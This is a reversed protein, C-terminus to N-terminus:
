LGISISKITEIPAFKNKMIEINVERDETMDMVEGTDALERELSRWRDLHM